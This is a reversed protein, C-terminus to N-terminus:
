EDAMNHFVNQCMKMRRKRLSGEVDARQEPTVQKYDMPVRVFESSTIEYGREELYSQLAANSAFDGSIIM